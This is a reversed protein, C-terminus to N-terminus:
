CRRALTTLWIINTRFLRWHCGTILYRCRNPTTLNDSEDVVTVQADDLRVYKSEAVTDFLHEAKLDRSLRFGAAERMPAAKFAPSYGIADVYRWPLVSCLLESFRDIPAM